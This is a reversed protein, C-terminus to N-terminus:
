RPRRPKPEYGAFYTGGDGPTTAIRDWPLDPVKGDTWGIWHPRKPAFAARYEDPADARRFIRTM